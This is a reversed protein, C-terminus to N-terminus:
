LFKKSLYYILFIIASIITLYLMLQINDNKKMKKIKSRLNNPDTPSSLYFGHKDEEHNYLKHSNPYNNLEYEITRDLKETYYIAESRDKLKVVVKVGDKNDQNRKIEINSIQDNNYKKSFIFIDKREELTVGYSIKRCFPVLRLAYEIANKVSDKIALAGIGFFINLTLFGDSDITGVHWASQYSIFLVSDETVFIDGFYLFQNENKVVDEITFLIKEFPKFSKSNGNDIEKLENM